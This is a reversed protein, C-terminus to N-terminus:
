GDILRFDEVESLLVSNEIKFACSVNKLLFLRNLQISCRSIRFSTTMLADTVATQSAHVVGSPARVNKAGFALM